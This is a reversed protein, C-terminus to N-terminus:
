INKNQNEKLASEFIHIKALKIFNNWACIAKVKAKSILSDMHQQGTVTQDSLKKYLLISVKQLVLNTSFM